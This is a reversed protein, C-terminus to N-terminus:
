IFYRKTRRKTEDFKTLLRQYRRPPEFSSLKKYKNFINKNISLCSNLYKIKAKIKSRTKTKRENTTFATLKM